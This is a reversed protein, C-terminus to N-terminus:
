DWFKKGEFITGTVVAGILFALIYGVGQTMLWYCTIMFNQFM